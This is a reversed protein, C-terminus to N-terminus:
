EVAVVETGVVDSAGTLGVVEYEYAGIGSGNGRCAIEDCCDVDGSVFM